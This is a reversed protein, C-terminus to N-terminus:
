TEGDTARQGGTTLFQIAETWWSDGPHTPWSNHGAGQFRWLRKPASLSDYLRISHKNPVVEDAEAIAVAVPRNFSKLRSVSDFQDKTLARAPLYWYLTQALAPLSDWPTILILGALPAPPNAAVAAAVACGMSEGLLYIPGNFQDHAQRVIAEADATFSRESTEGTRGGYGPYEALVVRLGLPGLAHVFYDRQWASGANGHFAIVTGQVKRPLHVSVYGKFAATSQPWFALNLSQVFSEPPRQRDPFYIMRRQLLYVTLVLVGYGIGVYLCIRIATSM